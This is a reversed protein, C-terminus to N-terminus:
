ARAIVETLGGIAPVSQSIFSNQRNEVRDVAMSPVCLFQQKELRAFFDPLLRKGPSLDSRCFHGFLKDFITLPIGGPRTACVKL